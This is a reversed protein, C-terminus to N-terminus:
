DTKDSKGNSVSWLDKKSKNVRLGHKEMEGVISSAMDLIDDIILGMASRIHMSPNKEKFYIDFEMFRRENPKMKQKPVESIVIMNRSFEDHSKIIEKARSKFYDEIKDFLKDCSFESESLVWCKGSLHYVGSTNSKFANAEIVFSNGFYYRYYRKERGM